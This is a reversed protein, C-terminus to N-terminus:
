RQWPVAIPSTLPLRRTISCLMGARCCFVVAAVGSVAESASSRAAPAPWYRQAASGWFAASCPVGIAMGFPLWSARQVGNPPPNTPVMAGCKVRSRLPWRSAKKEPGAGPALALQPNKGFALMALQGTMQLLDLSPRHLVQHTLALLPTPLHCCIISFKGANALGARGDLRAAAVGALEEDRGVIPSVPLVAARVAVTASLNDVRVCGRERVKVIAPTEISLPPHCCILTYCRHCTKPEYSLTVRRGSRFQPCLQRPEGDEHPTCTEPAPSAEM